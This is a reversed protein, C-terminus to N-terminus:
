ELGGHLANYDKVIQQLFQVDNMDSSLIGLKDQILKRTKAVMIIWRAYDYDYRSKLVENIISVDEDKLDMVQPFIADYEEEVQHLMTDSLKTKKKVKIVCTKAAIDGLRQGKGNILITILALGGQTLTVEFLRIMWRILYNIISPRTGDLKVVRIGVVWKGVTFGNWVIEMILHYLMVPLLIILMFLWVFEEGPPDSASEVSGDSALMGMMILFFWYVGLVIADLVYALIREGLGAPTYNLQVHQTTEVGIETM